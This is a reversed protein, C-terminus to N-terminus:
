NILIEDGQKGEGDEDMEKAIFINTQSNVHNDTCKVESEPTLANSLHFGLQPQSRTHVREGEWPERLDSDVQLCLGSGQMQEVVASVCPDLLM